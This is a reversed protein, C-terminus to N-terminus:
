SKGKAISIAAQLSDAVLARDGKGDRLMRAIGECSLILAALKAQASPGAPAPAKTAGKTTSDALGAKEACSEHYSGQGAIWFVRAGAGFWAECSQCKGKFKATIVPSM